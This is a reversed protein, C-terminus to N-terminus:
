LQRLQPRSHSHNGALDAPPSSLHCLPRVPAKWVQYRYRGVSALYSVPFLAPPIWRPWSNCVGSFASYMPASWVTMTLNRKCVPPPGYMGIIRLVTDPGGHGRVSIDHAHLWWHPRPPKSVTHHLFGTGNPAFGSHTKL